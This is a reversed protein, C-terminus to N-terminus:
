CNTRTDENRQSCSVKQLCNRRSQRTRISVLSCGDRVFDQRLTPVRAGHQATSIWQTGISRAFVVCRPSPSLHFVHAADQHVRMFRTAASEPPFFTRSLVAGKNRKAARPVAVCVRSSSLPHSPHHVFLLLVYYRSVPPTPVQLTLTSGPYM